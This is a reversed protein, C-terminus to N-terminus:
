PSVVLDGTSADWRRIAGDSPGSMILKGDASVAVCRVPGGFGEMVKGISEGTTASWRFLLGSGYGSVILDGRVNM